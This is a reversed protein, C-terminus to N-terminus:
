QNPERTPASTIFASGRSLRARLSDAVFGALKEPDKWKAARHTPDIDLSRIVGRIVAIPQDRLWLRFESDGRANWEGHIDPLQYSKNPALKRSKRSRLEPLAELVADLKSAFEVNKDAEEAILGALQRLLAVLAKEKRM